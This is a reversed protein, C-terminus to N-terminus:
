KQHAKRYTANTQITLQADHARANASAFAQPPANPPPQGPAAGGPAAALSGPGSPAHDGCGALSVVPGLLALGLTWTLFMRRKM